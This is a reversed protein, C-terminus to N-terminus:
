ALMDTAADAPVAPGYLWGQVRDCGLRILGDRQQETEVGEGVLRLGMQQALTTISACIAEDDTRSGLGQVFSRDIKVEDIPFTRLFSMSSYGTGFDDLSLLVGAKKLEAFVAGALVADDLMATETVELCVAEGPVGHQALAGAIMAALGPDRMQRASLNISMTLGPHTPLWVALQAIAEQLAWRGVPLIQGSEEAIPIFEAPSVQGLTPHHWRMLAEFGCIDGSAPVVVPQYFMVLEGRGAAGELDDELIRRRATEAALGADFVTVTGRGRAKSRYMAADAERLLEEASVGRTKEAYAVGVSCGVSVTGMPLEFPELCVALVHEGIATAAARSGVNPYAIVFEDGSVRCVVVDPHRVAEVVRSAVAKLLLDGAAHGYTDNVPKFRDLDFLLVAVGQERGPLMQDLRSQLLSRNALRTLPDHHAQWYLAQRARIMTRITSTMRVILLGTMSLTLLLVITESVSFEDAMDGIADVLPPVLLAASLTILRSNSFGGGRVPQPRPAVRMGPHLTAAAFMAFSAVNCVAAAAFPIPMVQGVLFLAGIQHSSAILDSAVLLMFAGTLFTVALRNRANSTGFLTSAVFLGTVSVCPFSAHMLKAALPEGPHNLSPGLVAVWLVIWTGILVILTDMVDNRNRFRGHLRAFRIIFAALFGYSLLGFLDSLHASAQMAAGDSDPHPPVLNTILGSVASAYALLWLSRNGVRNYWPGYVMATLATFLVVTQVTEGAATTATGFIGLMALAAFVGSVWVPVARRDATRVMAVLDHPASTTTVEAIVDVARDLADQRAARGRRGAAVKFRAPRHADGSAM